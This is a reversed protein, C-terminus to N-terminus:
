PKAGTYVELQGSKSSLALSFDTPTNVRAPTGPPQFVADDIYLTKIVEAPNKPNQIQIELPVGWTNIFGYVEGTPVGTIKSILDLFAQANKSRVVLTGTVDTGNITRGVPEENCLEREIESDVTCEIDLTQVSGIKQRAGGSGLFACINRGRVAAPKILSSAHVPQPYSKAANTFYVFRIDAGTAPATTFTVTTPTATAGPTTDTLTYDVDPTQLVGDVIVGFVRRFSTGEAGGRRYRLAPDDTVFATTAGDGTEFQEVPAGGGYYFSGGSLEATQTSNETAAFHYRLRTPYYGPILHGAVVVGGSGTQPDKWPSPINVFGMDTWRYVTGDPDSAGPAAASGTGGVEGTLFAEWETSVDFSEMTFTFDPDGPVKDVVLENGVERIVDTPVNVDGLGASQIRDIVNNGGVHIITGAHVSM